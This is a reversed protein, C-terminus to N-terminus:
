CYSYEPLLIDEDPWSRSVNFTEIPHFLDPNQLQPSRSLAMDVAKDASNCWVLQTYAISDGKGRVSVRWLYRRRKELEREAKELLALAANAPTAGDTVLNTEDSLKFETPTAM